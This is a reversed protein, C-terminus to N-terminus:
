LDAHREGRSRTAPSCSPTTSTWCATPRYRAGPRMSAVTVIPEDIDRDLDPFSLTKSPTTGHTIVIGDVTPDQGARLRAEFLAPRRTRSSESAIQVGQEGRRHRCRGNPVGVIAQGRCRPPRTPAATPPLRRWRWRDHAADLAVVNPKTAVTAAAPPATATATQAVAIAFASSLTVAAIGRMLIQLTFMFNGGTKPISATAREEFRAPEPPM